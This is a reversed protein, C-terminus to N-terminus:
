GAVWAIHRPRPWGLGQGAWGKARRTYVPWDMLNIWASISYTRSLKEATPLLKQFSKSCNSSNASDMIKKPWVPFGPIEKPWFGLKPGLFLLSFYRAVTTAVTKTVVWHDKRQRERDRSNKPEGGQSTPKNSFRHGIWEM